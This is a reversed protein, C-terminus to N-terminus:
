RSPSPPRPSRWARAGRRRAGPAPAPPTLCDGLTYLGGGSLRRREPPAPHSAGAPSRENDHERERQERRRRREGVDLARGVPGIRPRVRAHLRGGAAVHGLRAREGGHELALLTPRRADDAQRVRQGRGLGVDSGRARLAVLQPRGGGHVADRARLGAAQERDVPAQERAAGEVLDLRRDRRRAVVVADHDHGADVGLRRRAGDGGEGLLAVLVPDGGLVAAARHGVRVLEVAGVRLREDAERAVGEAGALIRGDGRGPPRVRM